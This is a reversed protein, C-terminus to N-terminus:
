IAQQGFFLAQQETDGRMHLLKVAECVPMIVVTLIAWLQAKTGATTGNDTMFVILTNEALKNSALYQRLQGVNNDITQIMGYFRSRMDPIGADIYPQRYKKEVNFPGHPTNVALYLFFPKQDHKDIFAKAKDFWVDTSYGQTKIPKGNEFYTDDFYNNGWYDPVEGAVGGQHIFSYDFGRDNPRFPYNDGLHWKGFIATNYGNYKFIDAMTVEDRYLHNRGGFTLWVGVRTAYRGTMLAARTPSCTPDVHFNDLRVSDHALQDINVTQLEPNGHVSMDGYGQDDTIIVIVNPRKKENLGEALLRDSLTLLLVFFVFKMIYITKNM